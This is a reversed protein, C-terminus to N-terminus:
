AQKLKEVLNRGQKIRAKLIDVDKEALKRLFGRSHIWNLADILGLVTAVSQEKDIVAPDFQGLEQAALAAEPDKHTTHSMQEAPVNLPPPSVEEILTDGTTQTESWGTGTQAKVIGLDRADSEELSITEGGVLTVRNEGLPGYEQFDGEDFEAGPPVTSAPPTDVEADDARLIPTIPKKLGLAEDFSTATKKAAIKKATTKKQPTKKASMLQHTLLKTPSFIM